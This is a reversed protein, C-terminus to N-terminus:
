GQGQPLEPDVELCTVTQLVGPIPQIEGAVIGGLRNLNEVQVVAIVDYPGFAPYAESVSRLRRIDKVVPAVEGTQVKILVIAKM